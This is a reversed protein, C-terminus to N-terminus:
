VKPRGATYFAAITAFSRYNAPLNSAVRSSVFKYLTEAGASIGNTLLVFGIACAAIRALRRFKPNGM